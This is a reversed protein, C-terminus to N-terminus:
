MMQMIIHLRIAFIGLLIILSKKANKNNFVELFREKIKSFFEQGHITFFLFCFIGSYFIFLYMSHQLINDWRSFDRLKRHMLTEVINTIVFSRVFSLSFLVLFFIFIINLYFCIKRKSSTM